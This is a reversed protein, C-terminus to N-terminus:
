NQEKNILGQQVLEAKQKYARSKVLETKTKNIISKGRKNKLVGLYIVNYM